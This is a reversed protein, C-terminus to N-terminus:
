EDYDEENYYYEEDDKKKKLERRFSDISDAIAFLAAGILFLENSKVISLVIMLISIILYM